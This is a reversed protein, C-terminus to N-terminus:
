PKTGGTKNAKLGDIWSDIDSEIWRTSRESPYVPSPFEGKKLLNWVNTRSLGVKEAVEHVTLLRAM